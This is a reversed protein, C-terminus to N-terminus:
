LLIVVQRESTCHFWHKQLPCREELEPSKLIFMRSETAPSADDDAVAEGYFVSRQSADDVAIVRDNPSCGLIYVFLWMTLESLSWVFTHHVCTGSISPLRCALPQSGTLSCIATSESALSLHLHTPSAPTSSIASSGKSASQWVPLRFIPLSSPLRTSFVVACCLM